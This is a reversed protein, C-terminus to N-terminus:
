AMCSECYIGSVMVQLTGLRAPVKHSHVTDVVVHLKGGETVKLPQFRAVVTQSLVGVETCEVEGDQFVKLQVLIFYRRM